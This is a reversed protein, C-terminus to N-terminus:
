VPDQRPGFLAVHDEALQDGPLEPGGLLHVEFAGEPARRVQDRPQRRVQPGGPPRRHQAAKAVGDLRGPGLFAPQVPEVQVHRLFPVVRIAEKAPSPASPYRRLEENALARLMLWPAHGGRVAIIFRGRAEVAARKPPLSRPPRMPSLMPM